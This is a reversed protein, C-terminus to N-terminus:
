QPSHVPTSLDPREKWVQTRLIGSMDGPKALAKVQLGARTKLSKHGGVM